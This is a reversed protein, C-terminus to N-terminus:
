TKRLRSNVVTKEKEECFLLLMIWLENFSTVKYSELLHISLAILITERFPMKVANVVIFINERSFSCLSRRKDGRNRETAKYENTNSTM